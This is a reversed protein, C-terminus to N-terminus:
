FPNQIICQCPKQFSNKTFSNFPKRMNIAKLFFTEIAELPSVQYFTKFGRTREKFTNFGSLESKLM